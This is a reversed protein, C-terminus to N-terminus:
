EIAEALSTKGYGNPGHFLVLDADLNILDVSTGFGRFNRITLSILKM